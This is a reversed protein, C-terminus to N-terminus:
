VFHNSFFALHSSYQSCQIIINIYLFIAIFTISTTVQPLQSLFCNFDLLHFIISM